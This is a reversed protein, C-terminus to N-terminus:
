AGPAPAEMMTPHPASGSFSVLNELEAARIAATHCDLTRERGRRTIASLEEDPMQIAAVAEETTTAVLIETVPDLFDDLGETQPM